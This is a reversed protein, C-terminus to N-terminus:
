LDRSVVRYQQINDHLWAHSLMAAYNAPTLNVLQHRIPDNLPSKESFFVEEDICCLVIDTIERLSYDLSCNVNACALSDKKGGVLTLSSHFRYRNCGLHDNM